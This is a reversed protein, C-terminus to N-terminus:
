AFLKNTPYSGLSVKSRNATPSCHSETSSQRKEGKVTIWVTKMLDALTARTQTSTFPRKYMTEAPNMGLCWHLSFITLATNCLLPEWLADQPACSPAWHQAAQGSPTPEKKARNVVSIRFLLKSYTALLLKRNSCLFRIFHTVPSMFSSLLSLSEGNNPIILM